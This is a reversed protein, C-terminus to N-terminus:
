VRGCTAMYSPLILLNLKISNNINKAIRGRAYIIIAPKLSEIPNLAFLPM